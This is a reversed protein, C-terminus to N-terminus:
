CSMDTARIESSSAPTVFTTGVRFDTMIIVLCTVKNTCQTIDMHQAASAIGNVNMTEKGELEIGSM